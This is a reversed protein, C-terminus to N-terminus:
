PQSKSECTRQSSGYGSRVSIASLVIRMRRPVQTVFGAVRSGVTVALAKAVSLIMEPPRISRPMPRPSLARRTIPLFGVVSAVNSCAVRIM